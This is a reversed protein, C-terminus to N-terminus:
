AGVRMRYITCLFREGDFLQETSILKAEIQLELCKVVAQRTGGTMRMLYDASCGARGCQRVLAVLRRPEITTDPM